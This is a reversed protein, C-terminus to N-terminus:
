ADRAHDNMMEFSSVRRLISLRMAAALRLGHLFLHLGHHLGFGLRTKPELFDRNGFYGPIVHENADELSGDAPRVYM